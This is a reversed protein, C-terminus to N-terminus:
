LKMPYVKISLDDFYACSNGYYYLYFVITSDKLSAPALCKYEIQKWGNANSDIVAQGSNYFDPNTRSTFVINSKYEDSKRWVSVDVIYGPKVKVPYVYSYQSEHNLLFSTNGSHHEKNSLPNAVVLSDRGDTSIFKSKDPTFKEFNFDTQTYNSLLTKSTNQFDSLEYIYEDTEPSAYILKSDGLKITHQWNCFDYLVSDRQVRDNHYFYVLFRSYKTFLEPTYAIEDWHTVMDAHQKYLYSCPYIKKLFGFYIYRCGATYTAGFDLASEIRACEFDSSIIIPENIHTNLFNSTVYSYHYSLYDFSKKLHIITLFTLISYFLVAQVSKNQLIRLKPLNSFVKYLGAIALPFCVNAAILYHFSYHKAVLLILFTSSVWIGGLLRMYVKNEQLTQKRKIVAILLAISMLIYISTFYFDEKFIDGLHILFEHPNIIGKDGKGYYGTHTALDSVWQFMYKWMPLAPAIILLFFLISLGMYKIRSRFTPLLFLVLILLPACTYKCAVLFGTFASYIIIQRLTIKQSYHSNKFASHYYIYAMFPMGFLIIFSEPQPNQAYLPYFGILPTLQFLLALIINGTRKFLYYGTYWTTLVFLVSITACIVYLYSETNMIVDQYLPTGYNFLHKIYIIIAVFCQIPTGPHDTHGIIMKGSALNMGNFLYAYTPDLDHRYFPIWHVLFVGTMVLYVLPLILLLLHKQKM